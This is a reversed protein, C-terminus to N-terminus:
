DDKNPVWLRVEHTELDYDEALLIKALRATRIADIEGLGAKEYQSVIAEWVGCPGASHWGITEKGKNVGRTIMRKKPVLREPNEVIDRARRMGIGPCGPYGDVADGALAQVYHNLKAAEPTVERIIPKGNVDLDKLQFHLGPITAFDKDRGVVIKEGPVLTDSTAHIGLADDAEIYAFHEAGHRHRLYEKLPSLLLPRISKSRNSKYTPDVALRWNDEAPCSLFIRVDTAKLDRRLTFLMNEVITEGEARRAFHELNGDATELVHQCASAAVFAITDGDILLTRRDSM